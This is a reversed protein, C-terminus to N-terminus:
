NLSMEDLFDRYEEPTSIFKLINDDNVDFTGINSEASKIQNSNKVAYTTSLGINPDSESKSDKYNKIIFSDIGSKQSEAYIEPNYDFQLGIDQMNYDHWNKGNANLEVSNNARINLFVPYTNLDLISDANKEEVRAYISYNYILNDINDIKYKINDIKDKIETNEENRVYKGTNFDFKGVLSTKKSNLKNLENTLNTKENNLYAILEKFSNINKAEEKNNIKDKAKKLVENRDEKNGITPKGEFYTQSTAKDNSFYFFKNHKFGTQEVFSTIEDAHVNRVTHYVVLPEGNEDVVKSANEPDNEWDGFWKKFAKTRVQAYQRENLNSPKGNPALLRGKEDRKANRLIENYEENYNNILGNNILINVLANKSSKQNIINYFINDNNVDFTGINDTASKVQNSSYAAYVNAAIGLDNYSGYDKINKFIIGDHKSTRFHEEIDRTSMRKGNFLIDNWNADNGEVIVPNKINFFLKKLDELEYKEKITDHIQKLEEITFIEKNTNYKFGLKSLLKLLRTYEPNISELKEGTFPDFMEKKVDERITTVFWSFEGFDDRNKGFKWYSSSMKRDNTAYIATPRGEIKTDFTDFNEKFADRTHYVVLPEGNEDVVKSVGKGKQYVPINISSGDSKRTAIREGIKQMGRGVNPLARIGDESLSGWTSVIAGDPIAKSLEEFLIKTDGPQLKTKDTKFHVSYQGFERDKVLEFHGKDKQGKLYIKLTQNGQHEDKNSTIEFEVRSSDLDTRFTNVVEWDGFWNKFAKTRVQVYQKENLNSVKGNPALM